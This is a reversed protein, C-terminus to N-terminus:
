AGATIRDILDRCAQGSLPQRAFRCSTDLRLRLVHSLGAAHAVEEFLFASEGGQEGIVLLVPRQVRDAMQLREVLARSSHIDDLGLDLRQGAKDVPLVLGDQTAVIRLAAEESQSAALTQVRSGQALLLTVLFASGLALFLDGIPLHLFSMGQDDDDDDAGSRM